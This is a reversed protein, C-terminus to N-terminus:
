SAVAGTDPDRDTFLVPDGDAPVFVIWEGSAPEIYGHWANRTAEDVYRRVHIPEM